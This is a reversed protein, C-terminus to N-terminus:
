KVFTGKVTVGNVKGALIRFGSKSRAARPLPQVAVKCIADVYQQVTNLTTNGSAFMERLFSVAPIFNCLTEAGERIDIIKEEIPTVVPGPTVPPSPATTQCGALLLAALGALYAHKM